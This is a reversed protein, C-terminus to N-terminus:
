LSEFAVGKKFFEELNKRELCFGILTLRASISSATEEISLNGRAYQLAKKGGGATNFIGKARVINGFEGTKLKTEFANLQAEGLPCFLTMSMSDFERSMFISEKLVARMAQPLVLDPSGFCVPFILASENVNLIESEIADLTDASVRDIKNILITDANILQDMFFSGFAHPQIDELFTHADVITVVSELQIDEIGQLVRIVSSAEAVGSPEILLRDPRIQRVIDRIADALNESQSCCICGGPMEVVKLSRSEGIEDGDMGLIGFENVLVATREKSRKLRGKIFTTKGAGLFGCVLSTIVATREKPDM